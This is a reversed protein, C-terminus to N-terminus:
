KSKYNSEFYIMTESGSPTLRESRKGFGGCNSAHTQIGTHDMETDIERHSDGDRGQLWLWFTQKQKVILEQQWFPEYWHKVFTKRWTKPWNRTQVFHTITFEILELLM